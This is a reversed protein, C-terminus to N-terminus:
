KAGNSPWIKTCDECGDLAFGSTSTCPDSLSEQRADGIDFATNSGFTQVLDGINSTFGDWTGGVCFMLLGSKACGNGGPELEEGLFEITAHPVDVFTLTKPAEWDALDGTVSSTGTVEAGNYFVATVANDMTFTCTVTRPGCTTSSGTVTTAGAGEITFHQSQTGTDLGMHEPDNFCWSSWPSYGQAYVQLDAPHGDDALFGIDAVSLVTEHIRLSDFNV